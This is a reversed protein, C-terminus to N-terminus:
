GLEQLLAANLLQVAYQASPLRIATDDEADLVLRGDIFAGWGAGLDLM